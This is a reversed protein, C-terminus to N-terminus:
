AGGKGPGSGEEGERMWGALGIPASLAPCPFPSLLIRLTLLYSYLPAYLGLFHTCQLICTIIIERSVYVM